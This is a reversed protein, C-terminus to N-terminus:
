ALTTWYMRGSIMPPRSPASIAANTKRSNLGRVPDAGGTAEMIVEGGPCMCFTRIRDGFSKSFFELKAEYLVSTLEELVPAPVEVRVGVDVPNCKLSLKLRGAEKTM